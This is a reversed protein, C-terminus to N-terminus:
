DLELIFSFRVENQATKSFGNIDARYVPVFESTSPDKYQLYIEKIPSSYVHSTNFTGEVLISSDDIITVTPSVRALTRAGGDDSSAVTGDSGIHLENVLGALNEILRRKISNLIPM